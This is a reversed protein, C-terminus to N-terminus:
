KVFIFSPWVNSLKKNLFCNLKTKYFATEYNKFISLNKYFESSFLASEKDPIKWRTAIISEVGRDLFERIFGSFGSQNVRQDENLGTECASLFIFKINSLNYLFKIEFSTLINNKNESKSSDSSFLLVQREANLDPLYDLNRNSFLEENEFNIINFDPFYSGHTILHINKTKKNLLEKIFNFKTADTKLFEKIKLYKNIENKEFSSNELEFIGSRITPNYSKNINCYINNYKMESFVSISDDDNIENLDSKRIASILNECESFYPLFNNKLSFLYDFPISTLNTPTILKYKKNSDIYKEIKKFLISYLIESNEEIQNIHEPLFFSNKKTFNLNVIKNLSDISILKEFVTRKKDVYVLYLQLKEKNLNKEINTNYEDGIFFWILNASSDILKNKITESFKNLLTDKKEFAYEKNDICFYNNKYTNIPLLSDNSKNTTNLDELSRQSILYMIEQYMLISVVESDNLKKRNYLDITINKCCDSNFLYRNGISYETPPNIKYYHIQNKFLSDFLNIDNGKSRFNLYRIKNKSNLLLRPFKNQTIEEDSLDNLESLTSYKEFLETSKSIAQSIGNNLILRSRTSYKDPTNDYQILKMYNMVEILSDIKLNLNNIIEITPKESQLYTNIIQYPYFYKNSGDILNTFDVKKYLEINKNISEILKKAYLYAKKKNEKFNLADYLWTKELIPKIVENVQFQLWNPEVLYNNDILTDIFNIDINSNTEEMMNGEDDNLGMIMSKNSYDYSLQQYFKISINIDMLDNIHKKYKNKYCIYRFKKLGVIRDKYDSNEYITNIIFCPYYNSWIKKNLLKQYENYNKIIGWSALVDSFVIDEIQNKNITKNLKVLAENFIKSNLTDFNKIGIAILNFKLRKIVEYSYNQAIKDSNEIIYKKIESQNLLYSYINGTKLYVYAKHIINLINNQDNKNIGYNIQDFLMYRKNEICVRFFDDIILEKINKYDENKLWEHEKVGIKNFTFEWIKKDNLKGYNEIEYIAKILESIDRIEEKASNCYKNLEVTDLNYGYEFHNERIKNLYFLESKEKSLGKNDFQLFILILIIKTINNM